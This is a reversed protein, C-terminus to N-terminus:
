AVSAADVLAYFNGGYAMDYDVVGWGDVEVRQDRAALFAPVNTLTVSRARGDM